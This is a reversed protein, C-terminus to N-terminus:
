FPSHHQAALAQGPYRSAKEALGALRGLWWSSVRLATRWEATGAAQILLHVLVTGSVENAGRIIAFPPRHAVLGPSAKLDQSAIGDPMERPLARRGSSRMMAAIRKDAAHFVVALDSLASAPMADSIQGYFEDDGSFLIAAGAPHAPDGMDIGILFIGNQVTTMFLPALQDVTGMLRQDRRHQM